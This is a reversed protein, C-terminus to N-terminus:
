IRASCDFPSVHAPHLVLRAKFFPGRVVHGQGREAVQDPRVADEGVAGRQDVAAKARGVSLQKRARRAKGRGQGLAAHVRAVHDGGDHGVGGRVYLRM